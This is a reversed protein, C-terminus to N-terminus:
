MTGWLGMLYTVVGTNAAAALVLALWPVSVKRFAANLIVTSDFWFAVFLCIAFLITKM